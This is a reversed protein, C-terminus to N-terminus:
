LSKVFQYKNFHVKSHTYTCTAVLYEERLERVYVLVFNGFVTFTAGGTPLNVLRSSVFIKIQFYCIKFPLKTYIYIYIGGYPFVM